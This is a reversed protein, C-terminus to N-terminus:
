WAHQVHDDGDDPVKFVIMVMMVKLEDPVNFMIMVMMVIFEGPVNFM